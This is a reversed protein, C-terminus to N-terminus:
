LTSTKLTSPTLPKSRKSIGSFEGRRAVAFFDGLGDAVEEVGVAVDGLFVELFDVVVGDLLAVLGEVEEVEAVEGEFM